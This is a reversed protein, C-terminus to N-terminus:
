GLWSYVALNLITKNCVPCHQKSLLVNRGCIDCLCLHGCPFVARTVLNSICKVCRVHLPSTRSDWILQKNSLSFQSGDIRRFRTNGSLKSAYSTIDIFENSQKNTQFSTLSDPKKVLVRPLQITSITSYQRTTGPIVPTRRAYPSSVTPSCSHDPFIRSPAQSSFGNVQRKLNQSSPEHGDETLDILTM